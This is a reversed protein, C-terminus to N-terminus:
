RLEPDLTYLETAHGVGRLAYRGVSVFARQDSAPLNAYFASSILNDRDVHRCMTVIRSVENVAPGVVTFDLRESSGINGYFVTGIHLGVYVAIPEEARERRERNVHVLRTRFDTQAHLAARCSEVPDDGNFIALIGDGILKLVDGGNGRIAMTAAEAYDNLLSIIEQPAIRESTATYSRLDSFWLVTRIQDPVGRTIAGNLVRDGADRGLYAHVLNRTTQALAASKVALALTPVLDELAEIDAGSFGSPRKTAWQSYVCDLEGIVNDKSFRHASALYDTHGALRLEDLLSFRFAADRQLHGRFYTEGSELLMYFTSNRWNEAPEGSDTRSYEFIRSEGADEDWRFGKGEFIPHLTDAFVIGHSLELGAARCRICFEGLLTTLDLGELGQQVLWVNISCVDSEQM